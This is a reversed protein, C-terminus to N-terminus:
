ESTGEKAEEKMKIGQFLNKGALIHDFAAQYDKDGSVNVRADLLDQFRERYIGDFRQALRELQIMYGQTKEEVMEKTPSVGGPFGLQDSTLKKLNNRVATELKSTDGLGFFVIGEQNVDPILYEEIEPGVEFDMFLFSETLRGSLAEGIDEKFRTTAARSYNNLVGMTKRLLTPANRGLAQYSDKNGLMKITSNLMAETPEDVEELALGVKDILGLLNQQNWLGSGGTVLLSDIADVMTLYLQEPDGGSDVTNILYQRFQRDSLQSVVAMEYAENATRQVGTANLREETSLLHKAMEQTKKDEAFSRGTLPNVTNNIRHTVFAEVLAEDQKFAETTAKGTITDKLTQILPEFSELQRQMATDDGGINAQNILRRFNAWETEVLIDAIQAREQPGYVRPTELDEDLSQTVRKVLNNISARATNWAEPLVNAVVNATHASKRQSDTMGEAQLARLRYDAQRKYVEGLRKKAGEVDDGFDQGTLEFATNLISQNEAAIQGEITLIEEAVPDEELERIAAGPSRGTTGTFLSDADVALRPNRRKFDNLVTTSTDVGVGRVGRQQQKMKHLRLLHETQTIDKAEEPTLPDFNDRGLGENFRNTIHDKNTLAISLENLKAKDRSEMFQGFSNSLVNGLGQIFDARGDSGPSVVPSDVPSYDPANTTLDVM